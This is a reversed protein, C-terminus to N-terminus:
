PGVRRDLQDLGLRRRREVTEVLEGDGVVGLVEGPGAGEPQEVGRGALVHLERELAGPAAPPSGLAM